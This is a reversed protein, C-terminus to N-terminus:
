ESNTMQMMTDNVVCCGSSTGNLLADQVSKDSAFVYCALPKDHENIYKVVSDVSRFRLIPLIPAFIEDQM